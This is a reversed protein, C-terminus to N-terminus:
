ACQIFLPWDPLRSVVGLYPHPPSSLVGTLQETYNFTDEVEIAAAADATYEPLQHPTPAVWCVATPPWSHSGLQDYPCLQTYPPPRRYRNAAYWSPSVEQYVAFGSLGRPDNFHDVVFTRIPLQARRTARGATCFIVTASLLLSVAVYFLVLLQRRAEM